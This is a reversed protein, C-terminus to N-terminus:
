LGNRKHAKWRDQCYDRRRRKVRAGFCAGAGNKLNQKVFNEHVSSKHHRNSSPKKRKDTVTKSKEPAVFVDPKGPAGINIRNCELLLQSSNINEKDATAVDTISANGLGIFNDLGHISLSTAPSLPPSKDTKNDNLFSTVNRVKTRTSESLSLPTRSLRNTLPKLPLPFQCRTLGQVQNQKTKSTKPPSTSIMSAFHKTDNSDIHYSLSSDDASLSSRIQTTKEVALKAVVPVYNESKAQQSSCASRSRVFHITHQQAQFTGDMSVKPDSTPKVKKPLEPRSSSLGVEHSAQTPRFPVMPKTKRGRVGTSSKKGCKEKDKQDLLRLLMLETSTRIVPANVRTTTIHQVAPKQCGGHKKVENIPM